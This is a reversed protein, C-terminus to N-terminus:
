VIQVVYLACVFSIYQQWLLLVSTLRVFTLCFLEVTIM